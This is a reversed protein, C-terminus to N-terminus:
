YNFGYTGNLHLFLRKIQIMASMKTIRDFEEKEQKSYRRERRPRTKFGIISRKRLPIMAKTEYIMVLQAHTEIM